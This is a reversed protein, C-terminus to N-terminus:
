EQRLARTPDVRAARRAPVWCAAIMVAALLAPVGALVDASLSNAGMFGPLLYRTIPIIMLLGIALGIGSFVLGQGLVMRLIGRPTAGIALRIGIERTRRSVTFAVVGYLGIMAMVLGMMGTASVIQAILRPGLMVRDDFFSQMTSVRLVPLDPDLSRVEDRITGMLSAPDGATRLEIYVTSNFDQSFPTWLASQAPEAWYVYLANKAVGVVQVEPGGPRDLRIRRGIPDAGAFLKEALTENIIVVPPSNATDRADFARGRLIPIQMLPFYHEDIKYSWATPRDEGALPRDGELMFRRSSQATTFSITSSMAVDRIGPTERLQDTLRKLFDRTKAEDYREITPNLSFFLTHDIRFGPDIRRAAQFGHICAGSIVLLVVSLALQATVLINRGTFTGRFLSVRAPGSDGAKITSGPDQRTARLAPLLGFTVGTAVSVVL